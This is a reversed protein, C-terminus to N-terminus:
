GRKGFFVFGVLALSIVILLMSQVLPQSTVVVALNTASTMGGASVLSNVDVNVDDVAIDPTGASMQEGLSGLSDASSQMDNVVDSNAPTGNVILPLYAETWWLWWEHDADMIAVDLEALGELTNNILTEWYAEMSSFGDKIATGLDTFGDYMGDSINGFGAQIARYIIQYWKLDSDVSDTFVFGRCDTLFFSGYISTDITNTNFYVYLTSDPTSTHDINSLDVYGTVRYISLSTDVTKGSLLTNSTVPLIWEDSSTNDVLVASVGLLTDCHISVDFSIGDFNRWDDVVIKMTLNSTTSTASVSSNSGPSFSATNNGAMITGSLSFDSVDVLYVNFSLITLNVEYASYFSLNFSSGMDGLCDARIRYLGEGVASNKYAYEQNELTFSNLTASINTCYTIEVSYVSLQGLTDGFWYSMDYSGTFSVSNSGSNNASVFDLLNLYQGTTEAASVPTAFLCALLSVIVLFPIIKKLM